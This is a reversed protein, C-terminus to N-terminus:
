TETNNNLPDGLLQNDKNFYDTPSSLLKDFNAKEIDNHSGHTHLHTFLPVEELNSPRVNDGVLDM